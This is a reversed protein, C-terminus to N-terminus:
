PRTNGIKAGAKISNRLHTTASSNRYHRMDQMDQIVWLKQEELSSQNRSKSCPKNWSHGCYLHLHRRYSCNGSTNQSRPLAMCAKLSTNPRQCLKDLERKGSKIGLRGRRRVVFCTARGHQLPSNAVRTLPWEGTKNHWM